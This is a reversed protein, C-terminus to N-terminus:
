KKKSTNRIPSHNAPTTEPNFFNTKNRLSNFSVKRKPKVKILASDNDFPIDVKKKGKDLLGDNPIKSFSM